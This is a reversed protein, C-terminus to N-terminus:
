RRKLKLKPKPKVLQANTVKIQDFWFLHCDIEHYSVSAGIDLLGLGEETTLVMIPFQNQKAILLPIKGHAKAERLAVKWFGNIGSELGLLLGNLNLNKYFKCEVMFDKLLREGISDTAIIDGAMSAATKGAAKMRTAKGGSMASRWFIDEREGQTIWLSLEKCVQREFQAGKAHGGGARMKRKAKM